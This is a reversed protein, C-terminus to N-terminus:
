ISNFDFLNIDGIVLLNDRSIFYFGNQVIYWVARAAVYVGVAALLLDNQCNNAGDVIPANNLVIWDSGVIGRPFM